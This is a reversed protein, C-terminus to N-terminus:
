AATAPAEWSKGTLATATSPPFRLHAGLLRDTQCFIARSGFSNLRRDELRVERLQLQVLWQRKKLWQQFL